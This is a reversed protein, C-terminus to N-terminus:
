RAATGMKELKEMRAKMRAIKAEMKKIGREVRDHAADIMQITQEITQEETM